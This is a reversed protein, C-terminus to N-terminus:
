GVRALTLAFGAEDDKWQAIPTFGTDRLRQLVDGPEYKPAKACRVRMGSASVDLVDGEPGSGGEFM